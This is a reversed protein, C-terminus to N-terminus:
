KNGINKRKFIWLKKILMNEKEQEFMEFCEGESLDRSKNRSYTGNFISLEDREDEVVDESSGWDSILECADCKSYSNETGNLITKADNTTYTLLATNKACSANWWM